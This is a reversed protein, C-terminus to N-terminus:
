WIMWRPIVHPEFLFRPSPGPPVVVRVWGVQPSGTTQLRTFNALVEGSGPDRLPQDVIYEHSDGHLLPVTAFRALRDRMLEDSCPRWLMDGISLAFALDAENLQRLVRDFQSGERSHKKPIRGGPALAASRLEM